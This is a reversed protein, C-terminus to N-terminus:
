TKLVYFNVKFLLVRSFCYFIFNNQTEQRKIHKEELCTTETLEIKSIFSALITNCYVTSTMHM